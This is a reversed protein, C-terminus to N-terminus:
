QKLWAVWNSMGNGSQTCEVVRSPVRLPVATARGSRDLSTQSGASRDPHGPAAYLGGQGATRSVQKSRSAARQPLFRNRLPGCPPSAWSASRVGVRVRGGRLHPGSLAAKGFPTRSQSSAAPINGPRTTPDLGLCSSATGRPNSRPGTM